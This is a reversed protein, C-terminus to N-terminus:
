LIFGTATEREYTKGPVFIYSQKGMIFGAPGDFIYQVELPQHVYFPWRSDNRHPLDDLEPGAFDLCTTVDDARDIGFAWQQQDEPKFLVVREPAPGIGTGGELMWVPGDFFTKGKIMLELHYSSLFAKLDALRCSPNFFQRIGTFTM